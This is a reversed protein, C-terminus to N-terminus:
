TDGAAVEDLFNQIAQESYGYHAGWVRDDDECTAPPQEGWAVVHCVSRFRSWHVRVHPFGPRGILADRLPIVAASDSLSIYGGRRQGGVPVALHRVRSVVVVVGAHILTPDLLRERYWSAEWEDRQDVPQVEAPLGTDQRDPPRAIL